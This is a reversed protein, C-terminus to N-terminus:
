QNQMKALYSELGHWFVYEAILRKIDDDYAYSDKIVKGVYPAIRNKIVNIMSDYNYAESDCIINAVYDKVNIDDTSLGVEKIIEDIDDKNIKTSKSNLLRNYSGKLGYEMAVESEWYQKVKGSNSIQNKLNNTKNKIISSDKNINLKNKEARKQLQQPSIRGKWGFERGLIKEKIKAKDKDTLVFGHTGTYYDIEGDKDVIVYPKGSAIAEKPDMKEVKIDQASRTITYWTGTLEYDDELLIIYKM